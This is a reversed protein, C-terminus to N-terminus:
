LVGDSIKLSIKICMINRNKKEVETDLYEHEREKEENKKAKKGSLRFCCFSKMNICSRCASVNCLCHEAYHNEDPFLYLSLSLTFSFCLSPFSLFDKNLMSM